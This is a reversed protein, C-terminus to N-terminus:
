ILSDVLGYGTKSEVELYDFEACVNNSEYLEVKQNFKGDWGEGIIQFLHDLLLVLHILGGSNDLLM